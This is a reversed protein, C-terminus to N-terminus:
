AECDGYCWTGCKPCLGSKVMSAYHAAEAKDSTEKRTEKAIEQAKVAVFEPSPTLEADIETIAATLLNYQEENIYADGLRAYVGKAKLDKYNKRYFRETIIEPGHSDRTLFKGDARVEICLIDETKKGLNVNYGDAYAINDQVDITREIKVEINKGSATTWTATRTAKM